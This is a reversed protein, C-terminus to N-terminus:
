EVVDIARGALRGRPSKEILVMKRQGMWHDPGDVLLQLYNDTLAVLEHGQRDRRNEVLAERTTGVMSAAYTDKRQAAWQRLLASREKVEQSTAIPPLKAADTGPRPSYSFVHLYNVPLEQLHRYGEDFSKEDETPFGVIFDAGVNAQPLWRSIQELTQRVEAFGYPRRMDRLIKDSGHQLALHLHPCWCSDGAVQEIIGELRADPELSSLRFRCRDRYRELQEMLRVLGDEQGQEVGYRALHTGTIVLEKFGAELAGEVDALIENAPRSVPGGRATPVICYSCNCDCGEHIKINARSLKNAEEYARPSSQTTTTPLALGAAEVAVALRELVTPPDNGAISVNADDLVRHSEHATPLCGTVVLLQGPDARRLRRLTKGVDRDAGLTVTCSNVLVIDAGAAAAVLEYGAAVLQAGLQSSDAVNTRCGLTDVFISPAM